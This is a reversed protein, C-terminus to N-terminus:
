CGEGGVVLGFVLAAREFPIVGEPGRRELSLKGLTRLPQRHRKILSHHQQQKIRLLLQPKPINLNPSPHTRIKSNKQTSSSISALKISIRYLVRLQPPRQLTQRTPLLLHEHLMRRPFLHIISIHKHEILFEHVLTRDNM